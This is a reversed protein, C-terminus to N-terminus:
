PCKTARKQDCQFLPAVSDAWTTHLLFIPRLARLYSVFLAYAWNDFMFIAIAHAACKHPKGHVSWSVVQALIHKWRRRCFLEMTLYHTQLSFSRFYTFFLNILGEVFLLFNCLWANQIEPLPQPEMPLATAELVLSGCNSDLWLCITNVILQISIVYVFSAPFPGIKLMVIKTEVTRSSVKTQLAYNWLM